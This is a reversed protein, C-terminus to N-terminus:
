RKRAAQRAIATLEEGLAEGQPVGSLMMDRELAGTREAVRSLGTSDWQRLLKEVLAKDKWFVSKGASAMVDAPREGREVRARLPALMLLRRQVSRLVPIAEGGGAPLQMLEDALEQMEGALALDAIRLFDGGMEAGVADLAGQDLERPREPSADLYLALKALEQAAIRQDNGCAEAIRAAVGPEPRLGEARAIDSVMAEANRGEPPYSAHALALPHAEASKLLASSKKLAGAIAVVPNECAPAALLAGVAEGVEEGAPQIWIAQPEGFLSIAGAADVLAAPDSRVAGGGLMQKSAGLAKLLREGHAQSQADDPGHFLYFRIKPDPRDLARPISGRAAKM